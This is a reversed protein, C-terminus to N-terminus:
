LDRDPNGFHVIKGGLEAWFAHTDPDLAARADGNRAIIVFGHGVLDDFRGERNHTAIKAQGVHVGGGGGDGDGGIFGAELAPVRFAILNKESTEDLEKQLARLQDNRVRV